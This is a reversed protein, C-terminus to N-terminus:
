ARGGLYLEALLPNEKLTAIIAQRMDTALGLRMKLISLREVSDGAERQTLQRPNREIVLGNVILGDDTREILLQATPQSAVVMRAIKEYTGNQDTM